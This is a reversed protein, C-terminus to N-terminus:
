RRLALRLRHDALEERGTIRRGVPVRLDPRALRGVLALPEADPGPMPVISRSLRERRRHALRQEQQDHHARRADDLDPAPLADRERVGLQRAEGVAVALQELLVRARLEPDALEVAGRHEHEVLM